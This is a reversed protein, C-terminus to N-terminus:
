TRLAAMLARMDKIMAAELVKREPRPGTRAGGAEGGEGDQPADPDPGTRIWALRLNFVAGGDRVRLYLDDSGERSGAILAQEGLGRVPEWGADGEQSDLMLDFRGGVEFEAAPDTKKHLEVEAELFYGESDSSNNDSLTCWVWDVAEHRSEGHPGTSSPQDPLVPKLADAAFRECLNDPARYGIEPRTLRDGFAYLGATWLVSTAVATAAVWRWPRGPGRGPPPAPEAVESPRASEWEGDLEPESIM